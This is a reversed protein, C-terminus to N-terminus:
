KKGKVLILKLLILPMEILMYPILIILGAIYLVSFLLYEWFIRFRTGGIISFVAKYYEEKVFKRTIMNIGVFSTALVLLGVIIITEL